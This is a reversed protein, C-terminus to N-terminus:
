SARVRSTVRVRFPEKVSGRLCLNRLLVILPRTLENGRPVLLVGDNRRIDEDVIMGVNLERVTLSKVVKGVEDMKFNELAAVLQPNYEDRQKRLNSLALEQSLGRVIQQDYDLSVRLIEAGLAITEEEPTLQERPNHDKFSQQQGEIMRAVMELRPINSLLKCGISPHSSFMAQEEDTLPEGAYIKYLIDPPLAVCGIQSLMAALEFQWPDSLAFYAIFHKVYHTIRLARSFAKPNVMSLIETLVKVSGTLTNRLLEREAIIMRYQEIGTKLVKALIESPCPKTLFRFISGENVADIASQLDANGTLIIRVSDPACEKVKTLFQIGNLGPMRMDAVIVAFPGQNKVAKLGPEGGEATEIQFQKRLQRKYAELINPDDDVFLIKETM